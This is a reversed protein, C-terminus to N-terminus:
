VRQVARGEGGREIWAILRPNFLPDETIGYAGYGYLITPNRGDLKM